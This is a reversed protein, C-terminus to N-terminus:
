ERDKDQALLWHERELLKNQGSEDVREGCGESEGGM